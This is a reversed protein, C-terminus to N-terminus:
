IIFQEVKTKGSRSHCRRRFHSGREEELETEWAFRVGCDDKIWYCPKEYFWVNREVITVPKGKRLVKQGPKFKAKRMVDVEQEAREKTPNWRREGVSTRVWDNREEDWIGWGGNLPFEKVILGM